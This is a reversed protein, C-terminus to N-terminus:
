LRWFTLWDAPIQDIGPSKHRKYSETAMEPVLQEVIHIDTQRIDNVEHVYIWQFM